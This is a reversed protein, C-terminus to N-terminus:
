FAFSQAGREIEMRVGFRVYTQIEAIRDADYNMNHRLEFNQTTAELESNYFM